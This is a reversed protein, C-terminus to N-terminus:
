TVRKFFRERSYHRCLNLKESTPYLGHCGFALTISSLQDLMCKLCTLIFFPDTTKFSKLITYTLGVAKSHIKNIYSDWKLDSSLILGLDKVQDCEPIQIQNIFFNSSALSCNRSFSIHESKVPQVKLQWGYSWKEVANLAAQLQTPNCSVIKLDDAFAYVSIHSIDNLINLLEGLYIAFLLPGLVSGQPVGSTVVSSESLHNQVVTQQYRNSLYDTIWDLTVLDLKLHNLLYLLKSHSVSDFAKAFDLYVIDYIAKDEYNTTLENLLNLQQTLTSRGPIFGYQADSILNNQLLFLLIHEHLVREMTRCIVSTLSIPRYNSTKCRLGKKYIPTIIARKWLSPLKGQKQSLTFLSALPKSLSSCTQKLFLSPICDPSRSFSNKLLQSQLM